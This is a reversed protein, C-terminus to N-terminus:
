CSMFRSPKQSVLNSPWASVGDNRLVDLAEAEFALFDLDLSPEDQANDEWARIVTLIAPKTAIEQYWLLNRSVRRGLVFGLERRRGRLRSGASLNAPGWEQKHM